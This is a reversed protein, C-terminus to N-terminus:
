KEYDIMGQNPFTEEPREPKRKPAEAQYFLATELMEWGRLEHLRDNATQARDAASRAADSVGSFISPRMAQARALAKRFVPSELLGRLAVRETDSLAAIRALPLARPRKVASNKM